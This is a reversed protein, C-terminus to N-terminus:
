LTCTAGSKALRGTTASSKGTGRSSEPEGNIYRLYDEDVSPVGYYELTQVCRLGALHRAPPYQGLDPNGPAVV